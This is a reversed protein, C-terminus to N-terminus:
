PLVHDLNYLHISFNRIATNLDFLSPPCDKLFEYDNKQRLLTIIQTNNQM